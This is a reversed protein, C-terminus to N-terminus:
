KKRGALATFDAIARIQRRLRRAAELLENLFASQLAPLHSILNM